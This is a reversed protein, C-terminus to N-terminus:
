ADRQSDLSQPPAPESQFPSSPQQHVTEEYKAWPSNPDKRVVRFYDAITSLAFFRDSSRFLLAGLAEVHQAFNQTSLEPLKKPRGLIPFLSALVIMGLFFAHFSIVNLPWETLMEFGRQEEEEDGVSVRPDRAATLFGVKGQPLDEILKHALVRNGSHTMSYNSVFCSNALLIVQSGQWEEKSLVTILPKNSKSALLVEADLDNEEVKKAIELNNTDGTTWQKPFSSQVPKSSDSVEAQWDLQKSVKESDALSWDRFFSRVRIRHKHEQLDNAWPGDLQEVTEFVGAENELLAWPLAIRDRQSSQLSDLKLEELAKNELAGVVTSKNKEQSQLEAGAFDWYDATPSYDRGVYILTKNGKKLWEEMWDRVPASHVFSEEPIWILSSLKNATRNSLSGVKMSKRNTEDCMNRFASVADPSVRASSGESLGYNSTPYRSGCGLTCFSLGILLLVPCAFRHNLV